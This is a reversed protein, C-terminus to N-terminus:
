DYLVNPSSIAQCGNGGLNLKETISVDAGKDSLKCIVGYPLRACLDKLLLQREEIKM